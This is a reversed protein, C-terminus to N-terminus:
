RSSPEAPSQNTHLIVFRGAGALTLARYRPISWDPLIRQGGLETRYLSVLGFNRRRTAAAALRGLLDHQSAILRPCDRVLLHAIAPLGGDRCLDEQAVLTLQDAAFREFEEEGPNTLVLGLGAAVVFSLGILTRTAIAGDM